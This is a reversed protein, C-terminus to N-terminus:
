DKERFRDYIMMMMDIPSQQSNLTRLFYHHTKL